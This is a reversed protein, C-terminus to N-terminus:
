KKILRISLGKYFTEKEYKQPDDPKTLTPSEIMTNSGGTFFIANEPIKNEDDDWTWFAAMKGDNLDPFEPKYSWIGLPKISFMTKNNVPALENDTETGLKKWEGTKLTSVEHEIYEDLCKWDNLSPISWGEPCMTGEELAEGNYFYNGKNVHYGPEGYAVTLKKMPKGNSYRDARLNERLWYQTGIKVIPYQQIDSPNRQDSLTYAVVNIEAPQEPKDDTHLNGEQDFCITQIHPLIGEYYTFSNNSLDWQLEGGNIEEDTDLLQLVTGNKLDTAGDKIPYITIAKSDLNGSLYEKCIEAVEKGNLHVRYINSAEFSLASLHLIQAGNQTETDELENGTPWKSISAVISTLQNTKSEETSIEIEYQANGNLSEAVPIPCTYIRGNWDIQFVQDSNIEQPLFIFEKGVLKDSEVKWGGTPTIDAVNKFNSFKGTELNYDAQTYFGTAVIHPNDKWMEEAEDDNKPSLKIKLKALRHEFDLSVPKGSGAVKNKTATLFDSASYDAADEQNPQISVPITTEGKEAGEPNYPYYAIFDLSNDGEPYYVEKEPILEQDEGCTLLLNDIYREDAMSNGSILAYLGIRDNADFLNDTIKTEPKEIHVSFTIPIDGEQIDPNESPIENICATAMFLCYGFLIPFHGRIKKNKM